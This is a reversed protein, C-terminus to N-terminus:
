AKPSSEDRLRVSVSLACEGAATRESALEFRDRRAGRWFASEGSVIADGVTESSFVDFDAGAACATARATARFRTREARAVIANVSFIV